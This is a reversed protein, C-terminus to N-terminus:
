RSETKKDAELLAKAENTLIRAHLWDHFDGGVPRGAKPDPMKQSLIAEAQALATRAEVALQAVERNPAPERLTARAPSRRGESLRFKAMALVAFGSADCHVGNADPSLRKLWDAASAYQGARYEALSKTLIMFSDLHSTAGRDALQLVPKLDPVADPALLCTKAVREPLERKEGKGFRALMTRCIRRYEEQNGVHLALAASRYWHWHEDPDLETLQAFDAAANEWEGERVHAFGRDNCEKIRKRLDLDSRDLEVLLEPLAAQNGKSVPDSEEGALFPPGDWDLGLKTLEQRIHRLDWVRLSHEANVVLKSGDPTFVAPGTVRDPDELRALERGTTLEVLRYIGNSQGMVALDTTVDWPKGPGLSPGLEWTDVAHIQGRGMEDTVLWRGDPSFRCLSGNKLSTQFVCKSTSPDYITVRENFVVFAVRRGGPSVSCSSINNGEEVRFPASSNPGLIWGGAYDQMAYGNWMCQAIVQGDGSAAICGHGLNLPLREPPGLVVRGAQGEELRVQWRFAGDLSNILLRGSGDFALSCGPEWSKVLPKLHVVRPGDPDPPKTPVVALERASQLDFLAVGDDRGIAVFRGNPHTAPLNSWFSHRPVPYSPYVLVQYDRADGVSWVGVRERRDGTRAGALRSGTLDFRLRLSSATPLAHTTFLERGSAEFLAVKVNWGRSVFRDGTPSYTIVPCGSAPNSLFRTSRLAPVASDFYYQQINEVDASSVTLTRGDPSWAGLGNGFQWRPPTATIVAGTRLDAVQFERSGYSFLAVFPARPHLVPCGPMTKGAALWYDREGTATNYVSISGDAHSLGMLRGDARFSWRDGSLVDKEKIRRVPKTPSFDWLEFRGSAGRVGLTRGAGFVAEVPEDWAELRGIETHDATRHITCLGKDNACVYLSFDDNMEVWTTAPDVEWEQTIHVDPLALAAIAENRLRDFWAAPQHLERGIASADGLARLADFRQGPRRSLRIGHAEGVLKEAELHRAEREADTKRQLAQGMQFAAYISVAAVAFLSMGVALLLSAVAKNRRCWRWIQETASSRRAQVPRDALFRRLDEAMTEATAYRKEPEKTIAKLVITELDRPIKRDLKHPSPPDEEAIKKIVDHRASDAFAPRLTLMEYLTVGLGYVDSRPDAKGLLREPAMYRLTGLMDGTHTLEDAEETKALGFDTIWVQGALDLLLNSPKIDRHLVGQSHAYALAEAVQLGIQAVSRFYRSETQSTLDSHSGSPTPTSGVSKGTPSQDSPSQGKGEEFKSGEDERKTLEQDNLWSSPRSFRCTLLSEAVSVALSEGPAGRGPLTLDQQRRLRRVEHLVDDLGQGHIFQMAFFHIGECEGVGFVPVIHTHHLRAAARAERRFRELHTPSALPNFPLVKLAVHRGLTEQVAEYVVGMGGRGVERLIRYEGLQKPIKSIDLLKPTMSAAEEKGPRHEEMLVLAPLLARIQEALEPYREAYEQVSPREGARYRALFSDALKEFPDREPKEPAISM